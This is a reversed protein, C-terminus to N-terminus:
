TDTGGRPGAAHPKACRRAHPRRARRALLCFNSRVDKPIIILVRQRFPTLQTNNWVKNSGAGNRANGGVDTFGSMRVIHGGGFRMAIINLRNLLFVCVCICIAKFLNLILIFFFKIPIKLALFFNIIIHLDKLLLNLVPPAVM